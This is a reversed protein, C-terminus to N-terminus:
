KYETVCLFNTEPNQLKTMNSYQIYMYDYGSVLIIISLLLIYVISITVPGAFDVM